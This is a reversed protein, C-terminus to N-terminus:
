RESIDRWVDLCSGRHQKLAEGLVGFIFSFQGRDRRFVLGNELAWCGGASESIQALPIQALDWGMLRTGSSTRITNSGFVGFYKILVCGLVSVFVIIKLKLGMLIPRLRKSRNEAAFFMFKHIIFCSYSQIDLVNKAFIEVRPVQRRSSFEFLQVRHVVYCDNKFFIYDHM